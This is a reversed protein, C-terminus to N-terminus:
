GGSNIAENVLLDYVHVGGSRGGFHGGGFVRVIGQSEASMENSLALDNGKNTGADGHV